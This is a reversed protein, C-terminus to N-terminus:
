QAAAMSQLWKQFDEPSMVDFFARMKYHGLGCLEACAIEYRGVKTATFHIPIEMGPVLDQKLRLERVFFSHTVDKSRLTLEVPQNVPVALTATVIDDKSAPDHDRDLGLFNGTADDVKEVHAPGFQGDPGPYRFYWAFQQGWVEIKMAGPSAGTFHVAAWIHYGMLNLGIFLIAALATWSAELLNNGHSYRAKRGDGRDQYRWVAYALAAQAVVFIIGTTVLTIMFQRDIAHGYYQTIDVPFWWTKALFFYGSLATIIIVVLAIALAM